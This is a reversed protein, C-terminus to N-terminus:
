WVLNAPGRSTTYDHMAGVLNNYPVGHNGHFRSDYHPDAVVIVMNDYDYYTGDMTQISIGTIYHNSTTGNYYPLQTTQTLYITAQGYMHNAKVRYALASKGSQNNTVTYAEWKRTRGTYKDLVRPVNAIWTAGDVDTNLAGAAALTRQKADDTSGSVKDAVGATYLAQLVAAPACYHNECQTISKTWVGYHAAAYLSFTEMFVENEKDLPLLQNEYLEEPSMNAIEEETFGDESEKIIAAQEETLNSYDEPMPVVTVEAEKVTEESAEVVVEVDTEEVYEAARVDSAFGMAMVLALGACMVKKSIKM